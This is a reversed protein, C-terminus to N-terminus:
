QENIFRNIAAILSPDAFDGIAPISGLAFNDLIERLEREDMAVPIGKERFNRATALQHDNRHEGFEAKRPMIVIQKKKMLATIISGMGAHAIIIDAGMFENDIESPTMFTAYKFHQPRYSGNGIQGSVGCDPNAGAWTDICMVMRDFPLQTGVTVFIRM